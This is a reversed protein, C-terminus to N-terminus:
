NKTGNGEEEMRLTVLLQGILALSDLFTEAADLVIEKDYQPLSKINELPTVRCLPNSHNHIQASISSQIM